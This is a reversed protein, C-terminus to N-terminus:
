LAKIAVSDVKMREIELAKTYKELLKPSSRNPKTTYELSDIRDRMTFTVGYSREVMQNEFPVMHRLIEQSLVFRYQELDAYKEVQAWTVIEIKGGYNKGFSEKCHKEWLRSGDIVLITGKYGKFTPPIGPEFYMSKSGPGSFSSILILLLFVVASIFTKQKTIKMRKKKFICFARHDSM